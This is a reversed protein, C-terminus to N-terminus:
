VKNFNLYKTIGIRFLISGTAGGAKAARADKLLESHSLKKANNDSHYSQLGAWIVASKSQKNYLSVIKTIWPTKQNFNGKYVMPVIVDLYRGMTPIDQGYWYKMMSPEPMVAASVICNPKIKHVETSAKKVFYNIADTSTKYLHATGGFRVYDFHIGDVGKIKAYKKAEKVKGNLFGYKITNDKNCPRTWKGNVYCIQMWLHVKMGYKHAKAIWKVVASKGHVHISYTHLFLHKTGLKALKKLDVSYMHSSWVWYGNGKAMPAKVKIKYSGSSALYPANKYFYYKVKYTGKKLNLCVEAYGNKDTKATYKKDGVEFVVYQNKIAKGNANVLQVIFSNKLGQRYNIYKDVLKLYTKTPAKITVKCAGKCATTGNDGDYAFNAIYTGQKLNVNLTAQGNKDTTRHYLVNNITINIQRQALATNNATLKVSIKTSFREYGSVKSVVFKSTNKVIEPSSDGEDVVPLDDGEGTPVDGDELAVDDALNIADTINESASVASISLLSLIIILSVILKYKMKVGKYMM